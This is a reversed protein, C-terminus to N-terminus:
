YRLSALVADDGLDSAAVGVVEGGRSLVEHALADYLDESGALRLDHFRVNTGDLKGWVHDDVPVFAVDVRGDLAALLAGRVTREV